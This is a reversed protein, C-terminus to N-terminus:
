TYDDFDEESDAEFIEFDEDAAAAFSAAVAKEREEPSMLTLEDLSYFRPAINEAFKLVQEKGADDLRSVVKILKQEFTSM